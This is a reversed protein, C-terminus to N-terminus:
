FFYDPSQLLQVEDFLAGHTALRKQLQGESLLRYLRAQQLLKGSVIAAKTIMEPAVLPLLSRLCYDGEHRGGANMRLM